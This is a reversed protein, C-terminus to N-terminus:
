RKSKPQKEPNGDNDRKVLLVNTWTGRSGDQGQRPETPTKPPVSSCMAPFLKSSSIERFTSARYLSQWSRKKKLRYLQNPKGRM